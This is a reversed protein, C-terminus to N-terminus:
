NYIIYICACQIHQSMGGICKVLLLTCRATCTPVTPHMNNYYQAIIDTCNFRCVPYARTCTCVSFTCTCTVILRCTCNPCCVKLTCDEKVVINSPKLDQLSLSLPLFPPLSCPLSHSHVSYRLHVLLFKVKVDVYCHGGWALALSYQTPTTQTSGAVVDVNKARGM